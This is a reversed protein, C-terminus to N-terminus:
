IMSPPWSSMVPFAVSSAVLLVVIMRVDLLPEVLQAVAAIPLLATTLRVAGVEPADDPM